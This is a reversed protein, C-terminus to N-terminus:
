CGFWCPKCTSVSVSRSWVCLFYCAISGLPHWNGRWGMHEHTGTSELTCLLLCFVCFHPLFLHLHLLPSSVIVMVLLCFPCFYSYFLVGIGLLFFSRGKMLLMSIKAFSGLRHCCSLLCFLLFWTTAQLLRSPRSDLLHESNSCFKSYCAPAGSAAKWIM